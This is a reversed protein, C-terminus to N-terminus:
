SQDFGDSLSVKSVKEIAKCPFSQRMLGLRM